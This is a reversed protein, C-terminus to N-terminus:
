KISDEFITNTVANVFLHKIKGRGEVKFHYFPIVLSILEKITLKQELIKRPSESPERVIENKLCQVIKEKNSKSKTTQKKKNVAEKFSITIDKILKGGIRSRDDDNFCLFAHNVILVQEVVKPVVAKGEKTLSRDQIGLTDLLKQSGGTILNELGDIKINSVSISSAIKGMLNSLKVEQASFYMENGDTWLREINKEVPITYKNEDGKRLFKCGYV